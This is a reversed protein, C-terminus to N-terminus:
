SENADERILILVRQFYEDWNLDTEKYEELEEFTERRMTIKAAYKYPM